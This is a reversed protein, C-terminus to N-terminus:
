EGPEPKPEPPFVWSRGRQRYLTARDFPRWVLATKPLRGPRKESKGPVRLASTGAEPTFIDGDGARWSHKRTAFQIDKKVTRIAM